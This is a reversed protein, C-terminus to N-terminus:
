QGKKNQQNVLGRIINFRGSQAINKVTNTTKPSSIARAATGLGGPLMAAAGVATGVGGLATIPDNMAKAIAISMKSAGTKVM